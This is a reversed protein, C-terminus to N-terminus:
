TRWTLVYTPPLNRWILSSVETKGYSAEMRQRFKIASPMYFATAYQITRFLCNGQQMFRDVESLVNDSVTKPLSAFPLGSIIFEVKGLGSNQHIAVANGADDNVFNLNPFRDRLIVTLDKNIEIGLFANSTPLIQNIANTFSGTGCGIELVIANNNPSIQSVMVDATAQSSPFIAGVSLPNEVFAKIFASSERMM